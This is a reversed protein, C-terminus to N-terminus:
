HRNRIRAGGRVPEMRRQEQIFPPEAQWRPRVSKGHVDAASGQMEASEYPTDVPRAARDVSRSTPAENRLLDLVPTPESRCCPASNAPLNNARATLIGDNLSAGSGTVTYVMPWEVRVIASNPSSSTSRSIATTASTLDIGRDRVFGCNLRSTSGAESSPNPM